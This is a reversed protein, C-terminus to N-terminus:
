GEADVDLVGVYALITASFPLDRVMDVQGNQDFGLNMVQQWGSFVPPGQAVAMGSQFYPLREGAIKLGVTKHLLLNAEIVRKRRTRVTGLQPIDPPLPRATATFPLGVQVTSVAVPLTISGSAVPFTGLYGGDGVAEVTCAELHSLGTIVSTPTAFTQISACDLQCGIQGTLPEDPSFSEFYEIYRKTQGNITRKVVVWVQSANRTPHPIVAVSEFEGQTTHRHWGIVNEVLDYTMGLLTGDSRIAWVIPIPEPAYVQQVVTYQDELLHGSLVTLERPDFRETQANYQLEWLKSGNRHVLLISRATLLPAVSASGLMSGQRVKPLNTPTIPDDNPGSLGYEAHSTGVVLRDAPLIWRIQNLTINGGAQTITMIVADDANVGRAFNFLGDVESEWITQPFTATGAFVLRGEFLMISVPFGRETTWAREELSWAGPAAAEDTTLAILIEGRAKTADIISNIRVLGGNLYVWKDEDEDRWGEASYLKVVVDDVVALYNQNNRFQIFASTGDATFVVENEPEEVTNVPFTAEPFIDSDGSSSGIQLSSPNGRNRWTLRYRRNNVTTVAQQRAGIGATGGHLKLEGQSITASGTGSVTYADGTDFDNEGGGSLTPNLTITDNPNTTTSISQVVGSSGDTTNTVVHTPLVGLATFNKTTDILTASNNGGTHTGSTISSTSLNTWATDSTFRGNTILNPEEDQDLQLDLDVSAGAPGDKSPKLEANPSKLLTWDGSDITLDTFADIVDVSVVTTSTFATIVGRGTGSEIQRGVDTELFAAASATVTINGSLGSLTLDADPSFGAEFTPPPDFAIIRFNWELGDATLRTLRRPQFDPHVILLIDNAQVTRLQAVDTGQYTTVVEVPIGSSEVRAGDKYFRIYEDGVELVYAETVSAEFPYVLTPKTSDKVETVFVTGSRSMLGGQQLVIWNEVIEAGNTYRPHESRGYMLPSLEGSSWNNKFPFVKAM